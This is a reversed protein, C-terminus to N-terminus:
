KRKPTKVKSDGVNVSVEPLRELIETYMERLEDSRKELTAEVKDRYTDKVEGVKKDCEALNKAVAEDSTAKIEHARKEYKLDVEEERMKLKHAVEEEEIKKTLKLKKHEAGLTHLNDELKDREDKLEIVRTELNGVRAKLQKELMGFM